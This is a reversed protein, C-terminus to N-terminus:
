LRAAAFPAWRGILNRFSMEVASYERGVEEWVSSCLLEKPLFPYATGMLAVFSGSVIPKRVLDLFPSQNIKLRIIVLKSSGDFTGLALEGLCSPYRREPTGGSWWFLRVLWRVIM